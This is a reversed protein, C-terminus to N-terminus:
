LKSFMHSMAASDLLVGDAETASNLTTAMYFQGIERTGLDCLTHWMLNTSQPAANAQAEINKQSHPCEDMNHGQHGGDHCTYFPDPKGDHKSPDEKWTYLATGGGVAECVHCNAESQLKTSIADITLKASEVNFLQIKIIDWSQTKPLSIDHFHRGGKKETM